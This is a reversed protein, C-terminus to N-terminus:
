GGEERRGLDKGGEVKIKKNERRLLVLADVRQDEKRKLKM